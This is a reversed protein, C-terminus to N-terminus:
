YGIAQWMYGGIGYGLTFGSNSKATIGAGPAGISNPGHTVVVSCSVTFPIRFVVSGGASVSGWNMITGDPLRTAGGAADVSRSFVIDNAPNDLGIVNKTAISTLGLNNRAAQTNTLDALNNGRILWTNSPYLVSDSLGLNSRAAAANTIGALNEYKFMVNTSPITAMDSLGLNVRAAPASTLDSLNNARQAFSAAPITVIDSLGLNSRAVAPNTVESLNNAAALFSTTSQLAMTGLGLNSRAAAVNAIGALNASRKLYVAEGKAPTIAKTDNSGGEVEGLTAIAIQGARAETASLLLSSLQSLPVAHNPAIAPAVNFPQSSNGNLVAFRADSEARSYLSLNNRAAVPNTIGALTAYNTLHQTLQNQVVAVAGFSEFARTWYASNLPNVPNLNTHTSLCKYIIGDSGQTYSLNGQYETEADWEPIGHQNAHAIFADQRHDLWNQYQYPPLEVVWGINSKQVGPDVKTGGAAWLRNLGSPKIINPM